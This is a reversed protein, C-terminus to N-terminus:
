RDPVRDHEQRVEVAGTVPVVLGEGRLHDDGGVVKCGVDGPDLVDPNLADATGRRDRVEAGSWRGPRLLDPVAPGDLCRLRKNQQGCAAVQYIRIALRSQKSM